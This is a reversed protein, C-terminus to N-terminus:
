CSHGPVSVTNGWIRVSKSLITTIHIIDVYRLKCKAFIREYVIIYLCIVFKSCGSALLPEVLQDLPTDCLLQTCYAAPSAIGSAMRNCYAFSNCVRVSVLAQTLHSHRVRSMFSLLLSNSNELTIKPIVLIDVFRMIWEGDARLVQLLLRCV